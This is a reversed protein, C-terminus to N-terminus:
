RFMTMFSRRKEEEQLQFQAMKGTQITQEIYGELAKWVQLAIILKTHMNQDDLSAKAMQAQIGSMVRMKADLFVQSEFIRQAEGARAIEDTM